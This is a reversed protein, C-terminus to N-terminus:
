DRAAFEAIISATGDTSCNDAVVIEALEEGQAVASELAERLFSEGNYVPLAVSVKM